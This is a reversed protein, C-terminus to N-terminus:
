PISPSPPAPPAPASPQQNAQFSTLCPPLNTVIIPQQPMKRFSEILRETLRKRDELLVHILEAETIGAHLANCAIVDYLVWNGLSERSVPYSPPKHNKNM